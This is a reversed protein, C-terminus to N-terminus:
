DDEVIARFILDIRRVQGARVRRSRARIFSLHVVRGRELVPVADILADCVTAAVSKAARFGDRDTIVSVQLRHEAGAGTKCSRDRVDEEGIVVYTEPVPGDPVADYVAGGVLAALAGDAALLDYVAGQLAFSVAFSM